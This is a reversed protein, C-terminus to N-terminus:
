DRRRDSGSSFRDRIWALPGNGGNGGNNNGGSTSGSSRRSDRSRDSGSAQGRRSDRQNDVSMESDRRRPTSFSGPMNRTYDRDGQSDGVMGLRWSRPHSEETPTLRGANRISDLRAENRSGTNERSLRSGLSLRRSMRDPREWPSGTQSSRRSNLPPSSPADDGEIGKRCIPCTNHEGLWASACAEHFWHSCPLMVVEDGIHVDDMCVSCEGKGEPGLLMEDLIKKPLAAIADPSAPGPANSTPHQEMLTSIIQDLAEQSYVADGARANAPNLLSAFLGQLGPPMGGRDHDGAAGPPPGLGGLINGVLSGLQDPPATLSIVYLSRRGNPPPRRPSRPVYMAIDPPGHPDNAGRPLRGTYTIRGGMVAPRAGGPLGGGRMLEPVEEYGAPPPPRRPGPAMLEGVMAQFAQMVDDSELAALAPARASGRLHNPMGNSHITQSIFISGGPGHTIHEEIDAEDPDSIDTDAWPNHDFLRRSRPEPPIPPTEHGPRPDSDPTVQQNTLM